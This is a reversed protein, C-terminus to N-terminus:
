PTPQESTAKLLLHESFTVKLKPVPGAVEGYDQGTEYDTIRFRGSGLGRLEVTARTAKPQDNFFAYYMNGNKEIGYAEPWDYGYIYLNRFTGNSLMQRNYIGIWKKWLTEKDGTLVVDKFQSGYAPSTFKTGIVGGTGVTSAFDRGLDKENTNVDVVRTLEVHDGYVAFNPGLLAKYMKIRRRVQISGVPDATVAQDLDALWAMSPTTGCPCVQTVSDPKLARTTQFIARYVDGVARISDQPSKHHHAPNYCAPVTYSFDLKNGDFGWDKIFRKTLAEYYQRVEPVAPCLVAFGGAMRAPKGDKTLILWEPHQKGIAAFHYPRGDLVDKGGDEVALPIWWLTIRLQARHFSDVIDRIGTEGIDPRPNWDGRNGYWGADLTAWHLGFEKLKPVTGIIQAPTFKLQYGWGCWNAEYDAPVPHAPAWGERRLLESYLRLAEYYDGHFVALFTTPASYIESPHLVAPTNLSIRASVRGDTTTEVPMSLVVPVSDLQGIAEGMARTWFALVPIGGGAGGAGKESFTLQQIPNTRAFTPSLQTVDDQGWVESSGQFSWMRYPPAGPDTQSANLRQRQISAKQVAVDSPGTNRWAVTSVLLNPLDDSIEIAVTEALKPLKASMGTIGVRTVMAGLRGIVQTSRVHKCDFSFDDLQKGNVVITAIGESHPDDLTLARGSERLYARIYGSQLVEFSGTKTAIDACVGAKPEIRISPRSWAASVVFCLLIVTLASNSVL